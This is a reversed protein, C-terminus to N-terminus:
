GTSSPNTSLPMTLGPGTSATTSSTQNPPVSTTGTSPSISTGSATVSSSTASPSVTSDPVSSMGDTATVGVSTVVESTAPATSDISGNDTDVPAIVDNRHQRAMFLAVTGAGTLM